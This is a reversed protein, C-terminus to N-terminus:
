LSEFDLPTWRSGRNYSPNILNNEVREVIEDM